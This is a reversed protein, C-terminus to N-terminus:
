RPCPLSSAPSNPRRERSSNARPNGTRMLCWDRVRVGFKECADRVFALYAERDADSFFVDQRRNGRQVVHHPLGPVVVRALRPM